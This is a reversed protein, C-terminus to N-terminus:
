AMRDDADIQRLEQERETVWPLGIGALFSQIPQGRQRADQLDSAWDAAPDLLYRGPFAQVSAEWGLVLRLQRVTRSVRQAAVRNSRPQNDRLVEVLEDTTLAGGADLLAALLTMELPAPQIRRGNVRVEPLGLARLDVQTRAQRPLPQPQSDPTLLGFLPAFAHAEERVWLSSRNLTALAERAGQLQGGRRALEARVIVARQAEEHDLPGTRSLAAHVAAADLAPLTVLAAAVDVNVWSQGSDCDAATTHAAGYLTDLATMTQGALRQTHGLGRRAQRLDDADKSKEALQAAQRYLSAAREWEGLARRVAGQSCLARSRPADRVRAERGFYNEAETLQGARLCIMGMNNLTRARDDTQGLLPLAESYALMAGAEDGQRSHLGGLDMLILARGWGEIGRLAEEFAAEWESKSDLRNLTLGKMRWALSRERLTLSGVDLLAQEAHALAAAFADQQSLAWALYVHVFAAQTGDLAERALRALEQPRGANSLLRLRLRLGNLDPPGLADALDLLLLLESARHGDELAHQITM